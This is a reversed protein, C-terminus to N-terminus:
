SIRLAGRWAILQCTVKLVHGVALMGCFLLSVCFCVDSCSETCASRKVIKLTHGEEFLLAYIYVCLCFTYIM